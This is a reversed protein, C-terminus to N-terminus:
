WLGPFLALIYWITMFGFFIGRLIHGFAEKPFEKDATKAWESILKVANAIDWASMLALVLVFLGHWPLDFREPKM